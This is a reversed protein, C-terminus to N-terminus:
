YHLAVGQLNQNFSAEAAPVAPKVRSEERKKSERMFVEYPTLFNLIKRPRNNLTDTAQDLYEQTISKPDMPFPCFERGIGNMNEVSGKQWPSGPDCFFTPIGLTHHLAFEKGNDFTCTLAIAGIKQKISEIIPESQKSEHKVFTVMRSKREVLTLINESQSGKNFMLDAEYHGFQERTGIETPRQHISVRHLIGGTSRQKRIVGRRRKKRPLLKWLEQAKNKPHYVFQYIAEASISKQPNKVTWRGAIIVPSWRENLKELVYKKLENNRDIKTGHRAKKIDTQKQADKPYLYGIHDSNRKLERSVTSKDRGIRDATSRISMGQRLCDFIRVREVEKLQTYYAM